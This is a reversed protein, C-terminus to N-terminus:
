KDEIVSWLESVEPTKVDFLLIALNGKFSAEQEGLKLNNTGAGGTCEILHETKLIEIEPLNCLPGEKEKGNQSTLELVKGLVCTKGGKNVFSITSFHVGETPYILLKEKSVVEALLKLTLILGNEIGCSPLNTECETFHLIFPHIQIKGELALMKPETTLLVKKCTITVGGAVAIVYTSTGDQFMHIKYLEDTSELESTTGVCLVFKKTGAEKKCTEASASASAVASAALAALAALLILRFRSM